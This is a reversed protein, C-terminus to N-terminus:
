PTGAAGSDRRPTAAAPDHWAGDRWITRAVDVGYTKALEDADLDRLPAGADVIAQAVWSKQVGQLISSELRLQYLLEQQVMRPGPRGGCKPCLRVGDANKIFRRNRCEPCNPWEALLRRVRAEGGTLGAPSLLRETRLLLQAVEPKDLLRAAQRGEGVRILSLANSLDLAAPDIAPSQRRAGSEARESKWGLSAAIARLWIREHERDTLSTLALCVSVRLDGESLAGGSGAPLAARSEPAAKSTEYALVFLSQALARMSPDDAHEAIEEGLEFYARPRDPRLGALRREVWEPRESAAAPVVVAPTVARDQEFVSTDPAFAAICLARTITALLLSM